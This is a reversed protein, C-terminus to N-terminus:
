DCTIGIGLAVDLLRPCALRNCSHKSWPRSVPSCDPPHVRNLGLVDISEFCNPPPLPVPLTNGRTQAYPLALSVLFVPGSLAFSSESDFAACWSMRPACSRYIPTFTSRSLIQFHM